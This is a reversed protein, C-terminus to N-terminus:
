RVEPRVHDPQHQPHAAAHACLATGAARAGRRGGPRRGARGRPAPQLYRCSATTARTCRRSARRASSRARRASPTADSTGGVASGRWGSSGPGATPCTSSSSCGAPGSSGHSRASRARPDEVHELVGCSLFADLSATDFPLRTAERGFIPQVGIADLLPTEHRNQEVDFAMVDFGRRRLLWAMQGYNCGWDLIRCPRVWRAIEDAKDVYTRAPRVADVNELNRRGRAISLRARDVIEAVEVDLTM